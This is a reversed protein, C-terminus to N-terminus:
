VNPIFLLPLLRKLSSVPCRQAGPWTLTTLEEEGQPGAQFEPAM